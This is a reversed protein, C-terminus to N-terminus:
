LSKNDPPVGDPLTILAMARYQHTLIANEAPFFASPQGSSLLMKPAVSSISIVEVPAIMAALIFHPEAPHVSHLADTIDGCDGAFNNRFGPTVDFLLSQEEGTVMTIPPGLLVMLLKIPLLQPSSERDSSVNNFKPMRRRRITETMM